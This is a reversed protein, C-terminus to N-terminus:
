KGICFRDFITRLLDDTTRKGTVEELARRATVLDALVWEESASEGAPDLSQIARAVSVRADRLLAEHRVNTVMPADRLPEAVDLAARMAGRLEEVGEGTKLSLPVVPGAPEPIGADAPGDAPPRGRPLQFEPNTWSSVDQASLPQPSRARSGPRDADTQLVGRLSRTGPPTVYHPGAQQWLSGPSANQRVAHAPGSATGAPGPTAGFPERTTWAPDLDIKNM